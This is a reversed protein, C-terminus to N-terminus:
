YFVYPAGTTLPLIFDGNDFFMTLSSIIPTPAALPNAILVDASEAIPKVAAPKSDAKPVSILLFTDLSKALLIVSSVLVDGSLIRYKTSGIEAKSKLALVTM